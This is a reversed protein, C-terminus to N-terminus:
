DCFSGHFQIEFGLELGLNAIRRMQEPWLTPGGHGSASWWICTLYIKTTGCYSLKELYEGKSELRDLIWDLHVRLDMSEVNDESSLYWMSRPAKRERGSRGSIADGANCARTPTLRLATSVDEVSIGDPYIRLEACTRECTPYDHNIATGRASFSVSHLNM